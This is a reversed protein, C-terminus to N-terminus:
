NLTNLEFQLETSKMTKSVLDNFEKENFLSHQQQDEKMQKREEMMKSYKNLVKENQQRKVQQQQKQLKKQTM